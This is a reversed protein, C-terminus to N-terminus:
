NSRSAVLRDCAALIDSVYQDSALRADEYSENDHILLSFHQLAPPHDLNHSIADILECGLHADLEGALIDEAIKVADAMCEFKHMSKKALYLDCVSARNTPVVMLQPVCGAVNSRGKQMVSHACDECTPRPSLGANPQPEKRM